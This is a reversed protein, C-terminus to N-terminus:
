FNFKGGSVLPFWRFGRTTVPFGCLVSVSLKKGCGSFSILDGYVKAAKTLVTIHYNSRIHSRLDQADGLGLNIAEEDALADTIEDLEQRM